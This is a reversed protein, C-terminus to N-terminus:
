DFLRKVKDLFSTAQARVETGLELGLAEILHRQKETVEKPIDVEVVFRLEGRRAGNPRPVGKGKLAYVQGSQTGPRIKMRASGELTPVTIEDGLVAQPYTIQVASLLDDDRREFVPHPKVRIVINLNGDRGGERGQEGGGNIVRMAGNAVGPPVAVPFTENKEVLGQGQCSPCPVDIIRGAVGCMNCPVSVAFIGQQLRLQGAGQCQPCTKASHGKAQGNGGCDDCRVPRPLTIELSAGNVVQELTVSLEYQLDRGPKGQVARRRPGRDFMAGFISEFFDTMNDMDMDFGFGTPGGTGRPMQHGYRDYLARKEADSLVQYAETLEKFKEAAQADDPNQDPHYKMALRRYAKKLTAADAERPVELIEYYDRKSM